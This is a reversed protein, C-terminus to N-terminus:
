LTNHTAVALNDYVRQWTWITQDLSVNSYNNNYQKIITLNSNRRVISDMMKKIKVKDEEITEYWCTWSLMQNLVQLDLLDDLVQLNNKALYELKRLYERSSSVIAESYKLEEMIIKKVIVHPGINQVIEWM